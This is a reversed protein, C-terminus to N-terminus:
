ENNNLIIKREAFLSPINKDFTKTEFAINHTQSSLIKQRSRNKRRKNNQSFIFGYRNTTSNLLSAFFFYFYIRWSWNFMITPSKVESLSVCVRRLVKLWKALQTHIYFFFLLFLLMTSTFLRARSHEPSTVLPSFLLESIFSGTQRMGFSLHLLQFFPSDNNSLVKLMLSRIIFRLPAPELFSVATAIIYDCFRTKM